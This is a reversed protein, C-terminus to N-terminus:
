VGPQFPAMTYMRRRTYLQRITSPPTAEALTRATPTAAGVNVRDTDRTPSRGVEARVPPTGLPDAALPLPDAALPLPDAALPLSQSRGPSGWAPGTTEASAPAGPVSQPEDPVVLTGPRAVLTTGPRDATVLAM